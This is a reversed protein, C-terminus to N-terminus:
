SSHRSIDSSGHHGHENHPPPQANFTATLTEQPGEFIVSSLDIGLAADAYHFVGKIRSPCRSIASGDRSNTFRARPFVFAIKGMSKKVGKNCSRKDHTRGSPACKRAQRMANYFATENSSGHAKIVPAKLGFLGAGGYESYDLMNKLGKLDNKIMGASIKNKMSSTLTEKYCPLFRCHREKLPRSSWTERHIWRDRFM